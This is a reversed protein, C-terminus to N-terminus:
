GVGELPKAFQAVFLRRVCSTACFAPAPKTTSPEARTKAHLNSGSDQVVLDGVIEIGGGTLM